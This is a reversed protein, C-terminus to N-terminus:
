PSNPVSTTAETNNHGIGQGTLYMHTHNKLAQVEAELNKIQQSLDALDCVDGVGNGDSDQQDPNAVNPCNDLNDPVGDNDSDAPICNDTEQTNAAGPTICRQSFDSNNQDTDMGDPLRSIGAADIGPNDELGAGSGETYPAGTDGEYSVADVVTGTTDTLAVADPSGNQILNTDPTVDMDCNPVNNADGCVVFYGGAPLVVGPLAITQYIAAGGGNGNVLELSFGALNVDTTGTNKLEIFEATDTSPQDYDVENIVLQGRAPAAMTLLSVLTLAPVIVLDKKM